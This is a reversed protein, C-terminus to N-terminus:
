RRGVMMNNWRKRSPKPSQNVLEFDEQKFAWLGKKDFETVDLEGGDVFCVRTNTCLVPSGSLVFDMRGSENWHNPRIKKKCRYWFGIVM